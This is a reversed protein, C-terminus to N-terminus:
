KPLTPRSAGNPISSCPKREAAFTIEAISKLGKRLAGTKASFFKANQAYGHLALIKLKTPM